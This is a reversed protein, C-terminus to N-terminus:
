CKLFTAVVWKGGVSHEKYMLGFQEGKQKIQDLEKEYFGSFLISGSYKISGSLEPMCDLIVNATINALVIDFSVDSPIKEKGGHVPTANLIKNLEFNEIMNDYSPGEIDIALINKAGKMSAYIALLGTGSGFDMMEKGELDLESMRVIMGHTTHHHGTGFAMKPALVIKLGDIDVDKHFPAVITCIGPIFVPDFNSEWAENWDKDPLDEIQYPVNYTVAIINLESIFEDNYFERDIYALLVEEDEMFSNFPLESLLAVLVDSELDNLLFRFELWRGKNDM